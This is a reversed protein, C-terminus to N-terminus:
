IIQIKVNILIGSDNTDDTDDGEATTESQLKTEPELEPETVLVTPAANLTTSDTSNLHDSSSTGVLVFNIILPFNYVYEMRCKCEDISDDSEDTINNVDDCEPIIMDELRLSRTLSLSSTDNIIKDYVSITADSGFIGLLGFSDSIEDQENGDNSSEMSNGDNGIPNSVTPVADVADQQNENSSDNQEGSANSSKMVKSVDIRHSSSAIKKLILILDTNM